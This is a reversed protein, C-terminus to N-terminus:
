HARSEHGHRVANLAPTDEILVRDLVIEGAPVVHEDVIATGVFPRSGGAINLQRRGPRAAGRSLVANMELARVDHVGDDSSQLTLLWASGRDSVVVLFAYGARHGIQVLGSVNEEGSGRGARAADPM